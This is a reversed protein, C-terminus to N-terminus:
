DGDKNGFLDNLTDAAQQDSTKIFHAYVDTTTSTRSHGARGSVTTLPVGAAIQLTINTHRLSHVTFPPLDSNQKLKKLWADFRNPDIPGGHEGTFIRDTEIWKDGWYEKTRIYWERYERLQEILMNSISMTRISNETKPEKTYIGKSKSHNSTRCVHITGNKFDVDDWELGAVEGRRLGTFLFINFATRVRIDECNMVIGFFLKAQKDDLFKISRKPRRGFSIYDAEAYNHEVLRQRKAMAFICQTARKVKEITASAYIKTTKEIFFVSEVKVGLINAMSQAYELSINKGKLANALSGSNIQYKYRFDKYQIHKANMVERLKPKAHVTTITHTEKDLQDYFSQIIFPTVDKVKYGGIYRCIWEVSNISMEYYSLSFDKHVRELWIKAYDCVKINPNITEIRSSSYFNFMTEEFEDAFKACAREEQKPTMKGEPHWTTTKIITKQTSFDKVKVQIDYVVGHKTKRPRFTAM